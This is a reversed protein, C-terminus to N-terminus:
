LFRDLESIEKMDLIELGLIDLKDVDLKKIKEHYNVPVKPFKKLILKWLISEKGSKEGEIVGELKGELKGEQRLKDALSM